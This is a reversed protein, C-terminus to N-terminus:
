PGLTNCKVLIFGSYELMKYLGICKVPGKTHWILCTGSYYYKIRYPYDQNAVFNKASARLTFLKFCCLNDEYKIQSDCSM